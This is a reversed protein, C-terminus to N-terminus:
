TLFERYGIETLIADLKQDHAESPAAEVQQGAFALGIAVPRRRARLAALTRDYYGGGWGLRAGAADFALLPVFLLDPDLVAVGPPPAPLGAADPTLPDGPGFERFELPAGHQTVAPLLVRVGAAWLRWALPGPDIESRMPLYLSAATVGELLSGPLLAAAREGADPAGAALAARRKAM